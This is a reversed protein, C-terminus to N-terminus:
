PQVLAEDGKDLANGIVRGCKRDNMVLMGNAARARGFKGERHIKEDVRCAYEHEATKIRGSRWPWLVAPKIRLPRVLKRPHAALLDSAM